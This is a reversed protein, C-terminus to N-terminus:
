RLGAGIPRGASGAPRTDLNRRNNRKTSRPLRPLPSRIPGDYVYEIQGNDHINLEVSMGPKLSMFEHAAEANNTFVKVVYGAPEKFLYELGPGQPLLQDNVTIRLEPNTWHLVILGKAKRIGLLDPIPPLNWTSWAARAILLLGALVVILVGVREIWGRRRRPPKAPGVDDLLAIRPAATATLESNPNTGRQRRALHRGLVDVVEAATQYRDNPDKELLRDIIRSLWEPVEPNIERIPRHTDDCVRKLVGLTTSARFPSRGTCMAYLVAGLSFLDARHGITECRAQEPAMFLPTGAVVGSQTLSADDVARALGFDSIKVREVCNELLINAPKIDRHVLGQAHAAALGTATQMGIRLISNLDLPASREIRAQLSIGPIFEMVLYPLGKWEDVSHIAVVHENRIAAAARAERAFRQRAPGSAALQPALIKIAVARHLSPDFAKLVIGMGGQGLLELVHYPGLKGLEGPTDSPDLFSLEIASVTAGPGAPEAEPEPEIEDKLAGMVRKLGPSEGTRGQRLNRMEEPWADDGAALTDLKSQCAHCRELHKELSQRERESISGDLLQELRAPDPCAAPRPKPQPDFGWCLAYYIAGCASCTEVHHDVLEAAHPSLSGDLYGRLVAMDPCGIERPNGNADHTLAELREQCSGCCSVHYEVVQRRHESISGDLLQLLLKERPCAHKRRM